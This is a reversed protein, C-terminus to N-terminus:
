TSGRTQSSEVNKHKGTWVSLNNQKLRRQELVSIYLSDGIIYDSVVYGVNVNNICTFTLIFIVYVLRSYNGSVQFNGM